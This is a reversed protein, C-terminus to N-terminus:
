AHVTVVANAMRGILAAEEAFVPRTAATPKVVVPMVQRAPIAYDARIRRIATVAHRVIEFERAQQDTM